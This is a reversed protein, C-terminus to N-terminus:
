TRRSTRRSFLVVRAIEDPEAWRGMPVRGVAQEWQRAVDIGAPSESM